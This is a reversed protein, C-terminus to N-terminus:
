KLLKAIIAELELVRKTLEIVSVMAANGYAMSLYGEGDKLVVQPLLKQM